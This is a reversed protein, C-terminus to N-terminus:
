SASGWRPVIPSIADVDDLSRISARLPDSPDPSSPSRFYLVGISRVLMKRFRRRLLREDSRGGYNAPDLRALSVVGAGIRLDSAYFTFRDGPIGGALDLETVGIVASWPRPPSGRLTYVVDWPPVQGQRTPRVRSISARPTVVLQVGMRPGVSGILQVVSSRELSGLPVLYVTGGPLQGLAAAPAARRELTPEPSHFAGTSPPLVAPVAYRVGTVVLSVVLEVLLTYIV